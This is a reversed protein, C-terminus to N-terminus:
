SFDIEVVPPLKLVTRCSLSDNLLPLIWRQLPTFWTRSLQYKNHLVGPDFRVAM